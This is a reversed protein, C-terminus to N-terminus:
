SHEKRSSSTLQSWDEASNLPWYINNGVGVKSVFCCNNRVVDWLVALLRTLWHGDAHVKPRYDSGFEFDTALLIIFREIVERLIKDDCYHPKSECLNIEVVEMLERVLMDNSGFLNDFNDELNFSNIKSDLFGQLLCSLKIRDERVIM